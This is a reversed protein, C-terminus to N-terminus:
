TYIDSFAITANFASGQLPFHLTNRISLYITSVHFFTRAFYFLTPHFVSFTSLFMCLAFFSALFRRKKM